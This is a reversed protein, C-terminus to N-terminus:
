GRSSMEVSAGIKQGSGEKRDTSMRVPITRVAGKGDETFTCRGKLLVCRERTQWKAGGSDFDVSGKGGGGFDLFPRSTNGKVSCFGGGKQYLFGSIMIYFILGVEDTVPCRHRWGVGWRM